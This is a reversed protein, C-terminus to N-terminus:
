FPTDIQSIVIFLYIFGIPINLLMLGATKLLAKHRRHFLAASLLLMLFFAANIVFAYGIFMFGLRELNGEPNVLQLIFLVTGIIFSGGGILKASFELHETFDYTQNDM